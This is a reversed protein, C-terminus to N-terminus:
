DFFYSMQYDAVFIGNIFFEDKLIGETEFGHKQYFRIAGPNTGLARLHLKHVSSDQAFKKFHELLKGGIGDSQHAPDVGIGFTWTYKSTPKSSAPHYDISGVPLDNILAVITNNSSHDKLYDQATSYNVDVPTNNSTWIKNEIKFLSEADSQCFPRIMLTNKM